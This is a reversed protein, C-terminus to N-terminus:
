FSQSAFLVSGHSSFSFPVSWAFTEGHCRQNSKFPIISHLTCLRKIIVQYNCTSEHVPNITSARTINVIKAVAEPCLNCSSIRGWNGNPTKPITVNTYINLSLSCHLRDSGERCSDGRLLKQASHSKTANKNTTAYPEGARVVNM